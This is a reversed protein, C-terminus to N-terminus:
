PCGHRSPQKIIKKGSKIFYSVTIAMFVTVMGTFSYLRSKRASLLTSPASFFLSNTSAVNPTNFSSKLFSDDTEYTAFNLFDHRFYYSSIANVRIDENIIQSTILVLSTQFNRRGYFWGTTFSKKGHGVYIRTEFPQASSDDM